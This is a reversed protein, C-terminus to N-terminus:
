FSFITNFKEICYKMTPLMEQYISKEEDSLDIENQLKGDREVDFEGVSMTANTEYRLISFHYIPIMGDEDLLAAMSCGFRDGSCPTLEGIYMGEEDYNDENELDSNISPTASGYCFYNYKRPIHMEFSFMKEDEAPSTQYLTGSEDALSEVRLSDDTLHPAWYTNYYKEWRYDRFKFYGLTTVSIGAIASLTIILTKAKM